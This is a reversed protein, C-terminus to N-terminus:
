VRLIKIEVRQNEKRGEQSTDQTLPSRKGYGKYLLRKGAIGKDRLYFAVAKARKTSLEDCFRHPPITNTHGGIEIVVNSNTSMFQFIENLVPNSALPIEFSNAEFFLKDIRITQGKRIKDIDLSKLIKPQSAPRPSPAVNVIAPAERKPKVKQKPKPEEVAAIPPEDGDCPVVVLHSANDMLINGNYPYLTPTNYFAELVIYNYNSTPEFRFSYELWQTNRILSTEGLLEERGCYETGGYIRLKAPTVYNVPEHTLQSQSFYTESRAADITFTYCKGKEILGSLKQSIREWTDNDRVVMGMYTQGDSAGKSVSFNGGLVPHVDPATQGRFGCDIWGKPLNANLRGGELPNGEFSPNTLKITDMQSFGTGVFVFSVLISLVLIRFM